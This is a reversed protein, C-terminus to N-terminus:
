GTAPVAERLVDRARAKVQWSQRSAATAGRLWSPELLASAALARVRLDRATDDLIAILKKKAAHNFGHDGLLPRDLFAARLVGIAAISEELSVPTTESM